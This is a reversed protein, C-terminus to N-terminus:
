RTARQGSNLFFALTTEGDESPTQASSHSGFSYASGAIGALFAGVLVAIMVGERPSPPQFRKMQRDLMEWDRRDM